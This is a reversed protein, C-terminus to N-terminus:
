GPPWGLARGGLLHFHLHMVTQGGDELCNTVIRFGKELGLQEALQACAEFIRAVVKSNSGDIDRASAIHKKPIVVVHVPAVPNIDEFALIDKDEFVKKSPIEGSAIRCFICEDM